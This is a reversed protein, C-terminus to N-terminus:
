TGEPATFMETIMLKDHLTRFVLSLVELLNMLIENCIQIRSLISLRCESCTSQILLRAAHSPSALVSMLLAFCSLESRFLSTQFCYVPQYYHTHRAFVEITLPFRYQSFYPPKWQEIEESFALQVATM